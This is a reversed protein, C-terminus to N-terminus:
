DFSSSREPDSRCAGHPRAQLLWHWGLEKELARFMSQPMVEFWPQLVYEYRLYSEIVYPFIRDRSADVLVFGSEALLREVGARDYTYAIPCGSQAEPQDLGARIM